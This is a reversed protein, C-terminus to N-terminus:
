IIHSTYVGTDTNGWTNDITLRIGSINQTDALNARRHMHKNCAALAACIGAM